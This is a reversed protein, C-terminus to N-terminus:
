EPLYSRDTTSNQGCALVLTMAFLAILKKM